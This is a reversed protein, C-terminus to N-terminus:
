RRFKKTFITLYLENLVDTTHADPTLYHKNKRLIKTRLLYIVMYRHKAKVAETLLKMM